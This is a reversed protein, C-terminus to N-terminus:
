NFAVVMNGSSTDTSDTDKIDYPTFIFVRFFQELFSILHKLSQPFLCTVPNVMSMKGGYVSTNSYVM